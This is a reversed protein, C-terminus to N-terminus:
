LDMRISVVIELYLDVIVHVLIMPFANVMPQASQHLIPYCALALHLMVPQDWGTNQVLAFTQHLVPVKEVASMQITEM